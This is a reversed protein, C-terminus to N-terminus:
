AAALIERRLKRPLRRTIRAGSSARRYDARGAPNPITRRVLHHYEDLASALMRWEGEEMFYLDHRERLDILERMVMEYVVRAVVETPTGRVHVKYDEPLREASYIEDRAEISISNVIHRALSSLRNEVGLIYSPTARRGPATRAGAFCHAISWWAQQRAAKIEAETMLSDIRNAPLQGRGHQGFYREYSGKPPKM